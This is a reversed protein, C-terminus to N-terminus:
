EASEAHKREQKREDDNSKTRLERACLLTPLLRALLTLL